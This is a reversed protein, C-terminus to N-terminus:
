RSWRPTVDSSPFGVLVTQKTGDANMAYINTNLDRKSTFVLQSGDPSWSPDVDIQPGAFTIRTLGLSTADLVYIGTAASLSNVSFAIKRGHPDWSPYDVDGLQRTLRTVGTGDPNMSYLDSGGTGIHDRASVFVIQRGDPSWSPAFDPSNNDTLLKSGTGDANMVYIEADSPAPLNPDLRTSARVYVIQKGDKSWSPQSSGGFPSTTIRVLGSGDANMAYIEGNPNDRTSQFAIRKGDPSWVPYLDSAPNNTLRKQDSGDPNMSYIEFNGDRDSAFLVRQSSGNVTKGFSAAGAASPRTISANDGCAALALLASLMVARHSLPIM